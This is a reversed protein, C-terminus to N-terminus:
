YNKSRFRSLMVTLICAALFSLFLGWILSGDLYVLFLFIMVMIWSLLTALLLIRHLTVHKM